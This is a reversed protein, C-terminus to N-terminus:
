LPRLELPGAHMLKIGAPVEPIDGQVIHPYGGREPHRADYGETTNNPDLTNYFRWKRIRDEKYMYGLHLLHVASRRCGAFNAAPVCSPHLNGKAGSHRFGYKGMLRFLSARKFRGYVGDVRYQDRSNWLYKVGLTFATASRHAAIDRRIGAEGCPELVEDGDIMLVWTGLPHKAAVQSVLWEKDRAEDFTNFPSPMVLAGCESATERTTDTSHDDMLYIAGCWSISGLVEWIWRAENKVRLAAVIDTVTAVM